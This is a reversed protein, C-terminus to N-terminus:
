HNACASHVEAIRLPSIGPGPSSATLAHGVMAHPPIRASPRAHGPPPLITLARRRGQMTRPLGLRPARQGSCATGLRPHACSRALLCIRRSSVLQQIQSSGAFGPSGNVPSWMTGRIWPPWSMRPFIRAAWREQLLRRPAPTPPPTADRGRAGRFQDRWRPARFNRGASRRSRRNKQRPRADSGRPRQGGHRSGPRMSIARPAVGRSRISPEVRRAVARLISRSWSM